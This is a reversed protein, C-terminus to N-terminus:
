PAAPQGGDGRRDAGQEREDLSEAQEREELHAEVFWLLKDTERTIEVLIDATAEDGLQQAEIIGTRTSRALRSLAEAICRVHDQEFSLALPYSALTSGAQVAEVTGAAFGGLQAVREGLTDQFRTGADAVQDFLEHLSLFRPGRVNWHAQKAQLRLDITVALRANVLETLARRDDSPLDHYTRRMAEPAQQFKSKM